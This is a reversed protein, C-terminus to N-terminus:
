TLTLRARASRAHTCCRSCAPQASDQAPHQPESGSCASPQWPPCAAQLPACSGKSCEVGVGRSWNWFFGGACAPVSASEPPQLVRTLFDSVCSVDRRCCRWRTACRLFQVKGGLCGMGQLVLVTGCFGLGFESEQVRPSWEGWCLGRGTPLSLRCIKWKFPFLSSM